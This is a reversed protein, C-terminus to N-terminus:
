RLLANSGLLRHFTANADISSEVEIVCDMQDYQSIFLADQLEVKTQVLLHKVSCM